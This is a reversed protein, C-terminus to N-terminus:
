MKRENIVTVHFASGGNPGCFESFLIYACRGLSV